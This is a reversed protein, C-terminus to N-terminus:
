LYSLFVCVKDMVRLIDTGGVEEPVMGQTNERPGLLPPCPYSFTDAELTM